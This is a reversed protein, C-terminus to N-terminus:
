PRVFPPREYISSSSYSSLVATEKRFEAASSRRNRNFGILCGPVTIGAHHRSPIPVQYSSWVARREREEERGM